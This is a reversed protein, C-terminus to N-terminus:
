VGAFVGFIPASLEAWFVGIFFASFGAAVPGSLKFLMKRYVRALAINGKKEAREIHCCTIIETPDIKLKKAIIMATDDNFTSRGKVWNAVHSDTTGLHKALQYNSKFGLEDKLLVIYDATKRYM